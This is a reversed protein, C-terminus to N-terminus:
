PPNSKRQQKEAIRARQEPNLSNFFQEIQEPTMAALERPLATSDPADPVHLRDMSADAAWRGIQDVRKGARAHYSRLARSILSIGVASILGTLAGMAAYWRTDPPVPRPIWNLYEWGALLPTVIYSGFFIAILSAFLEWHDTMKRRKHDAFSYLAAFAGGILTGSEPGGDMFFAAASALFFIILEVKM